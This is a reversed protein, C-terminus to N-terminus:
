WTSGDLQEALESTHNNTQGWESKRWRDAFALHFAMADAMHRHVIPHADICNEGEIPSASLDYLSEDDSLIYKWRGIRLGKMFDQHYSFAPRNMVPTDDLLLDALSVGQVSEPLEIDFLDLLTPMLDISEVETEIWRSEGLSRPHCFMLPVSVQEEYVSTGHGVRGHDYFAEGHDALVVVLTDDLLQRSRLDEIMQGFWQDNYTIEGQYLAILYRLDEGELRRTGLQDLLSGTARPQISGRYTEPYYLTLIEPPPDYPVHPDVTWVFSLWSGTTQEGIWDRSLPWLRETHARGPEHILNRYTQSGRAFGRGDNVFGNSSFLGTAWGAQRFPEALVTLSSPLRRGPQTMRHVVQYTSTLLSGSSPLSTNGQVTARRFIVCQQAFEVFHPAQVPTQPNYVAFYDPRLADALWILVHRPRTTEDLSRAPREPVVLEPEIWQLRGEGVDALGRLELRVVQGAFPELAVEIPRPEVTAVGEWLVQPEEGDRYLRIAAPVEEQESGAPDLALRTRLRGEEPLTLYVVRAGYGPTTLAKKGDDREVLEFSGLQHAPWPDAGPPQIRAYDFGGATRGRDPTRDSRAFHFRVRNEGVKLFRAPLPIRLESWDTSLGTLTSRVQEGNLFVDMRQNDTARMRVVLELDTTVELLPFFFAGRIGDTWAVPRSEETRGEQWYTGSARGRVYKLASPHGFNIFLGTDYNHLLHRNDVFRFVTRFGQDTWGELPAAPPEDAPPPAIEAQQGSGPQSGTVPPRETSSGLEGRNCGLICGLTALVAIHSWCLLSQRVMM